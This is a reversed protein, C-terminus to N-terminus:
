FNDAHVFLQSSRQHNCRPHVNNYAFLGLPSVSTPGSTIIVARQRKRENKLSLFVQRLFNIGTSLRGSPSICLFVSACECAQFVVKTVRHSSRLIQVSAFLFNTSTLQVPPALIFSSCPSLSFILLSRALLPFSASEVGSWVCWEGGEPLNRTENKPCCASPEGSRQPTKGDKRNSKSVTGFTQRM